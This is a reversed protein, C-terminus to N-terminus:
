LSVMEGMHPVHSRWGLQAHIRDSLVEAAGAEGHVVFVTGPAESASALWDLLENSDAHVSFSEIQEIQAHVPVLEGHM